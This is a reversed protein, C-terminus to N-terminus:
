RPMDPCVFPVAAPTFRQKLVEAGLKINLLLETDSLGAIEATITMGDEEWSIETDSVQQWRSLRYTEWCSDSVLTGDELFIQLSGLPVAEDGQRVWVRNLLPNHRGEEDDAVVRDEAMIPTASVAGVGWVGLLAIIATKTDM